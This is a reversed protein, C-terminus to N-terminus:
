EHHGIRKVTNGERVYELRLERCDGWGPVATPDHRDKVKQSRIPIKDYRHFLDVVDGEAPTHEGEIALSERVFTPASQVIKARLDQALSLPM